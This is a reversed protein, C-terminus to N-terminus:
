DRLDALELEALLAKNSGFRPTGDDNLVTTRKITRSRCFVALDPSYAALLSSEIAKAEFYNQDLEADFDPAFKLEPDFGKGDDYTAMTVETLAPQGIFELTLCHLFRQKELRAYQELYSEKERSLGTCTTPDYDDPLSFDM